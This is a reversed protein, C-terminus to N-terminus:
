EGGGSSSGCSSYQLEARRVQGSIEAVTQASRELRDKTSVLEKWRADEELWQATEVLNERQHEAAQAADGPV